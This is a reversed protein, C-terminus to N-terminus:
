DALGDIIEAVIKAEVHLHPVLCVLEVGQGDREGLLLEDWSVKDEVGGGVEVRVASGLLVVHDVYFDEGTSFGSFFNEAGSPWSAHNLIEIGEMAFRRCIM